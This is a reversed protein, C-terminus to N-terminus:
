SGVSRRTLNEEAIEEFSYDNAQCLEALYFMIEGICNKKFQDNGGPYKVDDHLYYSNLAGLEAALGHLADEELARNFIYKDIHKGAEVQYESMRM